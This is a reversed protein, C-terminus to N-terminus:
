IQGTLNETDFGFTMRGLSTQTCGNIVTVDASVMITLRENGPLCGDDVCIEVVPENAGNCVPGGYFLEAEVATFNFVEAAVYTMEGTAPDTDDHFATLSFDTAAYVGNKMFELNLVNGNPLETYVGLYATDPSGDAAVYNVQTLFQLIEFVANCHDMCVANVDDVSSVSPQPDVGCAGDTDGHALHAPVANQGVTITHANDPNGPPIHCLTVRENGNGGGGPGDCLQDSVDAPVDCVITASIDTHHIEATLVLSSPEEGGPPCIETEDAVVPDLVECCIVDTRNADIGLVDCPFCCDGPPPCIETESAVLPDLAECCNLNTTTADIGFVYCSTCCDEAALVEGDATFDVYGTFPALSTIQAIGVGELCNTLDFDVVGVLCANVPGDAFTGGNTDVAMASTSTSLIIAFVLSSVTPHARKM